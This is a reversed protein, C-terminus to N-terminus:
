PTKEVMVAAARQTPDSVPQEPIRESQQETSRQQCIRASHVMANINGWDVHETALLNCAVSLSQSLTANVPAANLSAQGTPVWALLLIGIGKIHSM